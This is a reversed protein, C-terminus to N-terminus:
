DNPAQETYERENDLRLGYEFHKECLYIRADLAKGRFGIASKGCTETGLDFGCQEEHLREPHFRIYVM